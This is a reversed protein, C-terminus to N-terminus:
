CKFPINFWALKKSALAQYARQFEHVTANYEPTKLLVSFGPNHGPNIPDEICYAFPGETDPDIPLYKKHKVSMKRTDNREVLM